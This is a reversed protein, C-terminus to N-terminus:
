GGSVVASKEGDLGWPAHRLHWPMPRVHFSPAFFRTEHSEPVGHGSQSPV